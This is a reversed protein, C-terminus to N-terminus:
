GNAPEGTYPTLGTALTALLTIVKANQAIILENQNVVQQLLDEATPKPPANVKKAAM